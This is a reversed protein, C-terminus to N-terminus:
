VRFSETNVVLRGHEYYYCYFPFGCRYISVLRSLLKQRYGSVTM